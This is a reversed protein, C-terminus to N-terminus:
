LCLKVNKQSMAKELIKEFDSNNLKNFRDDIIRFTKNSTKEAANTYMRLGALTWPTCIIDEKKRRQATVMQTLRGGIGQKRYRPNVFVGIKDGDIGAWGVIKKLRNRCIAISMDYKKKRPNDYCLHDGAIYVNVWWWMEGNDPGLSLSQLTDLENDTLKSFKTTEYHRM